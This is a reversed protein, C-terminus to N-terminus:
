NAYSLLAVPQFNIWMNDYPDPQVNDEIVWAHMSRSPLFVGIYVTGNKKFRKSTSAAFLSRPLCLDSQNKNKTSDRFALIAETANDFVPINIKSFLRLLYFSYRNLFILINAYSKIYWKYLAPKKSVVQFPCLLYPNNVFNLKELEYSPINQSSSHRFKITSLLCGWFGNFFYYTNKFNITIHFLKM